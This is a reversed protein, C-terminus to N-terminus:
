SQVATGDARVDLKLLANKCGDQNVPLDIMTVVPWQAQGVGLTSLSTTRSGPLVFGYGGTYQRVTFESPQCAVPRGDPGSVGVLDISLRDVRMAAINPNNVTVDVSTRASPTLVATATGTLEGITRPTAARAPDEIGV